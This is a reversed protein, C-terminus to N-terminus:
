RSTIPTKSKQTKLTNFNELSNKHCINILIYFIAVALSIQINDTLCGLIIVLLLIVKSAARTFLSLDHSLPCKIYLIPLFIFFIILYVIVKNHIKFKRFYTESFM